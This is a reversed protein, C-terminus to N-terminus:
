ALTRMEKTPAILEDLYEEIDDKIEQVRTAHQSEVWSVVTAQTVSDYAVFNTISSIDLDLGESSTFTRGGKTGAIEYKAHYIVDTHGNHSFKVWVNPAASSYIVSM